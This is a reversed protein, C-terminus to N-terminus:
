LWRQAQEWRETRKLEELSVAPSSMLMRNVRQASEPETAPLNADLVQVAGARDNCVLIMDCGANLAAVARQQMDGAVTAGQMSLDDSFITGNFQLESRLIQQLWFESFGAPQPDIQPYIVHAPMIGDLKQSLSLFPKLDHARIQELTRDDEPIAIHSDAQVSGHGPFHKGTCAMGAEHMGEIFSSALKSIESPVASFARDGIVDSCDDVDLVPAFSIDIGVAQVEAAMLWGLDRAARQREDENEIQQLSGMAPIASFGQRFRQVRGGEHDVAILLPKAAAARAERILAQLQELSAFNRTFLILGNVAPAALLNKDEETLETGAIDIMVQAM